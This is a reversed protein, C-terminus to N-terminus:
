NPQQKHHMALPLNIPGPPADPIVASLNAILSLTAILTCMVRKFWIYIRM